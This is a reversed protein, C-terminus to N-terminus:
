PSDYLYSTIAELVKRLDRERVVVDASEEVIREDPDFAISLDSKRFMTIDVMSDGVSIIPHHKGISKLLLDIVSGKDRLPVRLIGNGSLSGDIIEIGNAHHSDLGHEELISKSLLDIGGSIITIHGGLEKLGRFLDEIGSTRTVGRYLEIIYEEDLDPRSGLWREIDRKMFEEDDIEGRIYAQFSDENSTGLAEHIIRWSSRNEILVGDMDFIFLPKLDSM